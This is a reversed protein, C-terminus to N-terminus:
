LIYGCKITQIEGKISVNEIVIKPTLITVNETISVFKDIDKGLAPKSLDSTVFIFLYSNRRRSLTTYTGDLITGDTFYIQGRGKNTSM